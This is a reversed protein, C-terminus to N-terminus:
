GQVQRRVQRRVRRQNLPALLMARQFRQPLSEKVLVLKLHLLVPLRFYVLQEVDQFYDMRLQYRQEVDVVDQFYDMRLRHRQAVDVVVDLPHVLHVDQFTLVVDQNQEDPNQLVDLYVVDQLFQHDRFNDTVDLRHRLRKQDMDNLLDKLQDKLQHVLQQHDM